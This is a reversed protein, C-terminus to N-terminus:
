RQMMQDESAVPFREIESRDRIPRCSAMHLSREISANSAIYLTVSIREGYVLFVDSVTTQGHRWTFRRTPVGGTDPCNWIGTPVGYQENMAHLHPGIADMSGLLSLIQIRRLVQDGTREFAYVARAGNQFTEELYVLGEEEPMQGANPRGHIRERVRRAEILPMGLYLGELLDPMLRASEERLREAREAARRAREQARDTPPTGWPYLAFAAAAGGLVLIALIALLIGRRSM